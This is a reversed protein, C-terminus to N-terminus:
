VLLDDLCKELSEDLGEKYWLKKSLYQILQELQYKTLDLNYHFRLLKITKEAVVPDRLVKRYTVLIARIEDALRQKEKYPVLVMLSRVSDSAEATTMDEGKVKKFLDKFEMAKEESVHKSSGPKEDLKLWWDLEKILKALKRAESKPIIIDYRDKVMKKTQTVQIDTPESVELIGKKNKKIEAM